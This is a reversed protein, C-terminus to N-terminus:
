LTLIPSISLLRHVYKYFTRGGQGDGCYADNTMLPFESSPWSSRAMQLADSSTFALRISNASCDTKQIFPIFNEINVMNQNVTINCSM